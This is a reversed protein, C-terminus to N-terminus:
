RARSLFTQGGLYTQLVFGDDRLEVRVAGCHEQQFPVAGVARVNREWEAVREPPSGFPPRSCVAAAPRVASLFDPTGSIDRSHWGTVLVDARLDPENELLWRETSFGADSALLVRLGAAEIRCVLAKDDAQPRVIEPPPFLVKMTVGLGLTFTEGRELYRRGFTAEALRAHVDRRVPSRDAYTTDAMWRPHFDGFVPWAGGVHATDGHTLVVGDLRNVGRSRLYPLVAGVYDRVGGCDM